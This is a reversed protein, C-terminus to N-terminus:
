SGVARGEASMQNLNACIGRANGTQAACPFSILASSKAAPLDRGVIAKRIIWIGELRSQADFIGVCRGLTMLLSSYTM